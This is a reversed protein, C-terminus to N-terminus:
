VCSVHIIHNMYTTSYGYSTNMYTSSPDHIYLNMYKALNM